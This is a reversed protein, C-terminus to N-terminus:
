LLTPTPIPVLWKGTYGEANVNRMIQRTYNWSLLLFTDVDSLNVDAPAVIQTRSGPIFRGQKAPTTDIIFALTDHSLDCFNLLTTAKAPAGYGALLEGNSRLELVTDRLRTRIRDVRGQFGVYASLGTLWRESERIADVEASNVRKKTLAVRLSGGQRDTLWARSAYLGHRNAAKELSSLSFFNRHEHYALDFANNV